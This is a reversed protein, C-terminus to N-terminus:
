MKSNQGEVANDPTSIPTVESKLFKEEDQNPPTISVKPTHAQDRLDPKKINKDNQMATGRQFDESEM